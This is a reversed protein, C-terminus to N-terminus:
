CHLLWHCREEPEQNCPCPMPTGDAFKGEQAISWRSHIGTPHLLNAEEEVEKATMNGDACVSLCVLGMGYCIVKNM